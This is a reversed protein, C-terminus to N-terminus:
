QSGTFSRGEGPQTFIDEGALDEPITSQDDAFEVPVHIGISYQAQIMDDLIEVGDASELFWYPPLALDVQREEWYARDREFHVLRADADGLHLVTSTDQLTVRFALNQVDTRATPWGSHPVHMAEILLGDTRVFVPADGYDLDFMTVREFIDEDGPTALKRMEAVAQAPAYLRIARRGKLLRLLDRASFHDGHFHSVFVADVGDFPPAGAFIAARMREPVRQYLEYSSEFLPDFLIKTDGHAIMVGENALYQVTSIEQGAASASVALLVLFRLIRSMMM